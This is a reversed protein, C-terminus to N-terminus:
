ANYVEERLDPHIQYAPWEDERLIEVIRSKSRLELPKKWYSYSRGKAPRVTVKPHNDYFQTATVDVIHGHCKIFAHGDGFCYKPQLGAKDLRKFLEYAAIGCMGGLSKSIGYPEQKRYKEAWKRTNSAIRRVRTLEDM